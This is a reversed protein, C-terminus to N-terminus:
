GFFSAFLVGTNLEEKFIRILITQTHSSKFIDFGNKM